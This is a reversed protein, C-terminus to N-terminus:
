CCARTSRAPAMPNRSSNKGADYGKECVQSHIQARIGRWRDLPGDLGFEEASRIARDFAVWAMIKSHTFHKRGGRVEWIGDDPQEWITSWIASGARMGAGLQRRRGDLGARRRAFYLAGLVRAMFM